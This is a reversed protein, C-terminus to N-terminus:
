MAVIQPAFRVASRLHEGLAGALDEGTHPAATTNSYVPVRPTTLTRGRLWATLQEGAAAVLPSHFATAVPLRTCRLRGAELQAQAAAVAGAEGAIVTQEPANINAIVVGEGLLAQVEEAAASVAVMAGPVPSATAMLEGRKRAALLLTTLDMAGAAHLATLEGFSHGATVDPEIGVSKLLSLMGASLAGLAPQAWETRVLTAEDSKREEDSFRPPPYMVRALGPVVAEAADLADRVADETMALDAGMALAQSGQGPFLFAVKGADTRAGPTFWVGGLVHAKGGKAVAAAADLRTDLDGTVELALRCPAKADYALQTERALEGPSRGKGALIKASLEDESAATFVLLEGAGPDHRPPRRATGRYEECTIHFNSGGFGFSSVSARRPHEPGRIWPRAETNLYFFSSAWDVSSTPRTIKITPPLVKHHLAM